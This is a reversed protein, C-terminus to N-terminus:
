PMGSWIEDVKKGLEECCSTVCAKGDKEVLKPHENHKACCLMEIKELVILLEPEFSKVISDMGFAKDFESANVTKGDVKYTLGSKM